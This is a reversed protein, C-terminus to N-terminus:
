LRWVRGVQQVLDVRYIADYGWGAQAIWEEFHSQEQVRMRIGAQRRGPQLVGQPYHHPPRPAVQEGPRRCRRVAGPHHGACQTDGHVQAHARRQGRLRRRRKYRMKEAAGHGQPQEATLGPAPRLPLPGAAPGPHAAGRTATGPMSEVGPPDEDRHGPGGPGLGTGKERKETVRGWMILVDGPVLMARHQFSAKWPWGNPLTWDKLYQPAVSQKWSGQVLSAPFSTMTPPSTWTTTSGTGTRSAPAGGSCTPRPPSTSTSPCSWGKTSTTSIGRPRNRLDDASPREDHQLIEEPPLKLLTELDM